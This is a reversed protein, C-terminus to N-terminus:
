KQQMEIKVEKFTLCYTKLNKKLAYLELQKNCIKLDHEYAQVLPM